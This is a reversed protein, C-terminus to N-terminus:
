AGVKVVRRSILIAEAISETREGKTLLVRARAGRGLIEAARAGTTCRRLKTTRATLSEKM